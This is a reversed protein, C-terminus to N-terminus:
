VRNNSRMLVRMAVLLTDWMAKATTCHSVRYYEDVGLTPILINRAKWDYSWKKEDEATWQAELKPVIDGEANTM